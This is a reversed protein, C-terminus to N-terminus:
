NFGGVSDVWSAKFMHQVLSAEPDQGSGSHGQGTCFGDIPLVLVDGFLTPKQIGTCNLYSMETGTVDSMHEFVANTYVMPGTTNLVDHFKPKIDAITTGSEEAVRILGGVVRDIVKTMIPHGPAAAMTSQAFQMKAMGGRPEDNREDYEIGVIAKVAKKDISAPIWEAFPQKCQTDTDSYVGGESELLMYRMLDSRLVPLTLSQFTELIRPRNSYHKHAFDECGKASMLTYCTDQNKTPWTRILGAMNDDLETYGFFIQWIKTPIGEPQTQPILVTNDIDLPDSSSASNPTRFRAPISFSPKQLLYFVYFFAALAAIGWLIRPKRQSPPDWSMPKKTLAPSPLPDYAMIVTTPSQFAIDVWVPPLM